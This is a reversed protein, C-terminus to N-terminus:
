AALIPVANRLSSPLVCWAVLVSIRQVFAFSRVTFFQSAPVQPGLPSCRTASTLCESAAKAANRKIASRFCTTVVISSGISLCLSCDASSPISAYRPCPTGGLDSDGDCCPLVLHVIFATGSRRQMAWPQILLNSSFTKLTFPYTGM